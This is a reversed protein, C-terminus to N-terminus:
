RFLSDGPRTGRIAGGSWGHGVAPIGRLDMPSPAHRSREEEVNGGTERALQELLQANRVHVAHQAYGKPFTPVPRIMGCREKDMRM